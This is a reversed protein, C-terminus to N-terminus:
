AAGFSGTADILIQGWARWVPLLEKVADADFVPYRNGQIDAHRVANELLRIIRRREEMFAMPGAEAVSDFYAALQPDAALRPADFRNPRGNFILNKVVLALRNDPDANRRRQCARHWADM